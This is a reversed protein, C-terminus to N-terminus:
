NIRVYKTIDTTNILTKGDYERCFFMAEKNRLHLFDCLVLGLEFQDLNSIDKARNQKLCTVTDIVNKKFKDYLPMNLSKKQEIFKITEPKLTGTGFFGQLAKIFKPTDDLFNSMKINYSKDCMPEEMNWYIRVLEVLNGNFDTFADGHKKRKIYQMYLCLFKLDTNAFYPKITMHDEKIKTHDYPHIRRINEVHVSESHSDANKTDKIIKNYKEIGTIVWLMHGFTGPNWAVAFNSTPEMIFLM